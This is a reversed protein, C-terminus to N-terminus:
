VQTMVYGDLSEKPQGVGNNSVRHMYSISVNLRNLPHVAQVELKLEKWALM